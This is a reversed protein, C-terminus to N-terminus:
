DILAPGGTMATAIAWAAGVTIAALLFGYASFLLAPKRNPATRPWFVLVACTLSALGLVLGFAYLGTLWVSTWLLVLVAGPLAVLVFLVTEIGILVAARREINQIVLHARPSDM